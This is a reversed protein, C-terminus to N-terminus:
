RGTFRPPRKEVFAKVGERFDSSAYCPGVLDDDEGADLRRRRAIRHLAEKTVRIQVLKEDGTHSEGFHTCLGCQGDEVHQM